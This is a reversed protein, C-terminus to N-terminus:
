RSSPRHPNGSPSARDNRAVRDPGVRRRRRRREGRLRGRHRRGDGAGSGAWRDLLCRRREHRRAARRHRRRLPSEGAASRVTVTAGAVPAEAGTVSGAVTGGALLELDQEIEQAGVTLEVTVSSAGGESVAVLTMEGPSVGDFRYTGDADTLMAVARGTAPDRVIVTADDVAGTQSTVTGHLPSWDPASLTLDDPDVGLDDLDIVAVPAPGYGVVRFTWEGIAPGGTPDRFAFSGDFSSAAYLTRTGDSAEITRGALPTGNAAELRGRLLAETRGDVIRDIMAPRLEGLDDIRVGEALLEARVRQAAAVYSGSTAGVLEVLEAMVADYEVQPLGPPPDNRLERAWDYPDTTQASYTEVTFGFPSAPHFPIRIRGTAGPPIVGAPAGSIEPVIWIPESFDYSSGNPSTAGEVHVLLFPAVLDTLGRNGYTIVYDAVSGGFVESPAFTALHFQDVGLNGYTAPPTQVSVADPLTSTEVGDTVILDYSGVSRGELPFTASLTGDSGLSVATAAIPANGSSQLQVELGAHLGPGTILLTVPGTNGVARPSVSGAGFPLGVASVSITGTGEIRLYTTGPDGPVVFTGPGNRSADRLTTTPVRGARSAVSLVTAAGVPEVSVRVPTGGTTLRLLGARATSAVVAAAPGGVALEAIEIDIETGAANDNENSEPVIRRADTRAIVHQAGDMLPVLGTTLSATFSGGPAVPIPHTVEGLLEDGADWVDDASLWFTTTFGRRASVGGVNAVVADIKSTAASPTGVTVSQVVLNAPSENGTSVNRAIGLQPTGIQYSSGPHLWGTLLEPLGDGDLDSVALWNTGKSGVPLTVAPGFTGDGRGKRVEVGRWWTTFALDVIDDGDLDAVVPQPGGVNGELEQASPFTGDGDNLLIQASVDTDSHTAILDLDGDGDLDAPQFHGFRFPLGTPSQPMPAFDPLEGVDGPVQAFVALTPAPDDASAAGWWSGMLLDPFGDGTVDAVAVDTGSWPDSTDGIPQAAYALVPTAFTPGYPGVEATQRAWWIDMPYPAQTSRIAMVIDDRGDRDLDWIELGRNQWHPRNWVRVAADNVPNYNDPAPATVPEPRRLGGNGDGYLVWLSWYGCVVDLAGDGDLDVVSSKHGFQICDAPLRGVIEAPGFGAPEGADVDASYGHLVMLSGWGGSGGTPGDNPHDGVIVIDDIGDGDWDALHTLRTRRTDIFPDVRLWHSDTGVVPFGVASHPQRASDRGIIAVGGHFPQVNWAGAPSNGFSGTALGPLGDADPGDVDIPIVASIGLGHGPPWNTVEAASWGGAPTLNPLANWAVMEAFTGDGNGFLVGVYGSYDDPAVVDLHGDGDLDYLAGGVRGAPLYHHGSTVDFDHIEPQGVLQGTGDNLLVRLCQATSGSECAAFAGVSNTAGLAVVDLDGDGDVDGTWAAIAHLDLTQDLAGARPATLTTALWQGATDSEPDTDRQWLKLRDSTNYKYQPVLLDNTGDGDIDGLTVQYAWPTPFESDPAFTGDGNGRLVSTMGGDTEGTGHASTYVVDLFGDDGALDALAISGDPRYAVSTRELWPYTGDGANLLTVLESQGNTGVVIDLAGDNDVDGVALRGVSQTQQNKYGLPYALGPEFGGFGDARNVMVYVDRNQRWADPDVATEAQGYGVSVIDDWGDANLDGVAVDVVHLSDSSNYTRAMRLSNGDVVPTPAEIAIPDHNVYPPDMTVPATAERDASMAVVPEGALASRGDGALPPQLAAPFAVADTGPIGGPLTIGAAAAAAVLRDREARLSPNDPDLLLQADIRALMALADRELGDADIAELAEAVLFDLRADLDVAQADVPLLGTTLLTATLAGAVCRPGAPSRQARRPDRQRDDDRSRHRM